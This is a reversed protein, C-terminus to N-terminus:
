GEKNRRLRFLAYDVIERREEATMDQMIARIQQFSMDEEPGPEAPLLGAQRFVFEPPVNLGRALAVLLDPGPNRLGNLVNALTSPYIDAARALDAPRWNRAAMEDELWSIFKEREIIEVLQM